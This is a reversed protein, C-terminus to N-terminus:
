PATQEFNEDTNRRITPVGGYTAVEDSTESKEHFEAVKLATAKMMGATALKRSLLQDLMREQPLKRMKVAYEVATGKGEVLLRGRQRVIPVVGLYVDPCLRRNLEVERLCLRHRDRLTSYDLYGLNVPKKVKYVYDGAFFLLSMQTQQFGVSEPRYPYAEPLRLAGALEEPTTKM